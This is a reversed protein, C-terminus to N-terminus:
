KFSYDRPGLKPGRKEAIRRSRILKVHGMSDQLKREPQSERYLSSCARAASEHPSPRDHLSARTGIHRCTGFKRCKMLAYTTSFLSVAKAPRRAIRLGARKSGSEWTASHLASTEATPGRLKGSFFEPWTRWQPCGAQLEEESEYRLPSGGHV